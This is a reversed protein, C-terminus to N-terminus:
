NNPKQYLVYKRAAETKSKELLAKEEELPKLEEYLGMARYAEEEEAETLSAKGLAACLKNLMKKYKTRVLNIAKDLEAIQREVEKDLLESTKQKMAKDAVKMYDTDDTLGPISIAKELDEKTLTLNWVSQIGKNADYIYVQHTKDASYLNGSDWAGDGSPSGSRMVTVGNVKKKKSYNNESANHWHGALVSIYDVKKSEERFMSDKLEALRDDGLAKGEPTKGHAFIILNNHWVLGTTWRLDKVTCRVEVKPDNEYLTKLQLFLMFDTQYDHNGPNYTLILKECNRKMTEVAWLHAVIGNSLMQEFRTDNHQETGATTTNKETDTNFFDNGITMCIESAKITDQVKVAEMVLKAYRYLAKKYDYSDTSDFKSALKGLHLEVDPMVLLKDKNYKKRNKTSPKEQAMMNKLITTYVKDHQLFKEFEEEYIGLLMEDSMINKIDRKVFKVSFRQQYTQSVKTEKVPFRMKKFDEDDYGLDEIEGRPLIREEKAPTTWYGNDVIKLEWIRPDKNFYKYLFEDQTVKAMIKGHAVEVSDTPLVGYVKELSEEDIAFFRREAKTGELVDVDFRMNLVEESYKAM